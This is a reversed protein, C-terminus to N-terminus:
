FRDEKPIIIWALLYFIAQPGPILFSLIFLLRVRNPPWDLAQAIGGCVGAIVKQHRSRKLAM